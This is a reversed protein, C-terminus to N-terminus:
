LRQLPRVFTIQHNPIIIRTDCDANISYNQGGSGQLILQTSMQLVTQVFMLLYHRPTPTAQSPTTGHIELRVYMMPQTNNMNNPTKRPGSTGKVKQHGITTDQLLWPTATYIITSAAGHHCYLISNRTFNTTHQLTADNECSEEWCRVQLVTSIAVSVRISSIDPIDLRLIVM